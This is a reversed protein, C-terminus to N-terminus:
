KSRDNLRRLNGKNNWWVDQEASWHDGIHGVDLQCQVMVPGGGDEDAVTVVSGCRYFESKRTKSNMGLGGMVGIILNKVSM